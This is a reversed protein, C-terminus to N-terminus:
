REAFRGSSEAAYLVGLVVAGAALGITLVGLVALVVVVLSRGLAGLGVAGIWAPPSSGLVRQRTAIDLRHFAVVGIWALTIPLAEPQAVVAAILVVASEVVWTFPPVWAAARTALTRRVLSLQPDQRGVLRAVPGPDAQELLEAQAAPLPRPAGVYLLGAVASAGAAVVLVALLQDTPLVLLGVVTLVAGDGRSVSFPLWAPVPRGPPPPVPPLDPEDVRDLPLRIPVPRGGWGRATRSAAAALHALALAALVATALGWRPTGFQAAGVALGIVLAAERLRDSTVDLWAGFATVTRRARALMGDVRDLLVSLLLFLAAVAAGTRTGTAILLGALLAAAV